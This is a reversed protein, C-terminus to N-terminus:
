EAGKNGAREESSSNGSKFFSDLLRELHGFGERMPTDLDGGDAVHKCMAIYVRLQFAATHPIRPGPQVAQPETAGPTAVDQEASCATAAAPTEREKDNTAM